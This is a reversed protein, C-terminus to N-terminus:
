ARAQAPELLGKMVEAAGFMGFRRKVKSGQERHILGHSLGDIMERYLEALGRAMGMSTFTPVVADIPSQQATVKRGLIKSIEAAVDNASWDQTATLEVIRPGDAPDLLLEAACRGIDATAIMAIRKDPAMFTPLTGGQVAPLVPAFNEFFYGARLATFGKAVPRFKEEAYHLGRIPGTGESREAGLSSLFVVHKVGSKHVAEALTDTLTRNVGLMDDVDLRPPLLLYAGAVGALAKTMVAPDGLQGVVVEVGQRKWPEGKGADRVLIRVKEGQALLTEAAVRGTHGTVGAVFYM